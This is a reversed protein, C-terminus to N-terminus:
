IFLYEGFIDQNKNHLHRTTTYLLKRKNYFCYSKDYFKVISFNFNYFLQALIISKNNTLCYKQDTIQIVIIYYQM